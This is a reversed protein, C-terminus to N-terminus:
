AAAPPRLWSDIRLCNILSDIDAGEERLDGQFDKNHSHVHVVACARDGTANGAQVGEATDNKQEGGKGAVTGTGTAICARPPRIQMRRRVHILAFSGGM